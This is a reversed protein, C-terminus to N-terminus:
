ARGPDSSTAVGLAGIPKFGAFERAFERAAM